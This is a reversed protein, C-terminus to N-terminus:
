NFEDVQKINQIKYRYKQEGKVIKKFPANFSVDLPQLEATCNAPVFIIILNPYKHKLSLLLTKEKHVAYVDWLIMWHTTEPDLLREIMLPRVHGMFLEDVLSLVTERRAWHSPTHTHFLSNPHSVDAHPECKKSKGEWIVQLRGVMRGGANIVPTVTFSRKDGFGNVLVTEGRKAWCSNSSPLFNMSTEDINFCLERLIGFRVVNWVFRMQFLNRVTDFDPPLKHAVSNIRRFSLGLRQLFCRYWGVSPVWSVNQSRFLGLTMTSVIPITM